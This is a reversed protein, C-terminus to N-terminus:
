VHRQAVRRYFDSRHGVLIIIVKMGEVLYAVRWVRLIELRYLNLRLHKIHPGQLPNGKLVASKEIISSAIKPSLRKLDKLARKDFDIEYGM